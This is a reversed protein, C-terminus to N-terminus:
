AKYQKSNTTTTTTTTITTTTTNNNTTPPTPTPTATSATTSTSTSSTSSTSTHQIKKHQQSLRALTCYNSNFFYFIMTKNCSTNVAKIRVFIHVLYYNLEM